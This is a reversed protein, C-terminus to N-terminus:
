RITGCCRKYKTGSGCPCPANRGIRGDPVGFKKEEFFVPQESNLSQRLDLLVPNTIELKVPPGQQHLHRYIDDFINSYDPNLHLLDARSEIVTDFSGHKMFFGVYDLEDDSFAKGHLLVRQKLYNRLEKTGWGFYTWAEVLNELDFINVAWPYSDNADKTLLLALNTALPGFNDRTVCIAVPLKSNDLSLRVVERGHFDYLPVTDGANLKKIIRNGQEFAKQIGTDSRFADKLRVFAKNPDRFPEIPPTAKAEVILILGDDIAVLDHEYQRDPTECVNSLIKAGPSLLLTLNKLAEEELVKDRMRRFSIRNPGKLLTKEGVFLLSTFLANPLACFAETDTIRILPRELYISQETPYRIEQADGRQISFQDWFKHATDPFTTELDHLSIIGLKHISSLLGTSKEFCPSSRVRERMTELSWRKKEAENLFKLREKRESIAAVQLEDLSKELQDTIWSCIELCQSASIGLTAFLDKDFPVLYNIIRGTVQQISALLGTSFYHFFALMSVERVEHWRSDPTEFEERTPAYLAMYSFFLEDLKKRVREWETEGFEVPNIPEESSLLVALLFPIQKSTSSLRESNGDPVSTHLYYSFCSGVVSRTSCSDLIERLEALGKTIEKELYDETSM